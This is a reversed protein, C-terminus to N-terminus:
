EDFAHYSSLGLPIKHVTSFFERNHNSEKEEIHSYSANRGTLEISVLLICQDVGRYWM